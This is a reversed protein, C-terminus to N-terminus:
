RSGSPVRGTNQRVISALVPLAVLGLFHSAQLSDALMAMGSAGVSALLIEVGNSSFRVIAREAGSTVWLKGGEAGGRAGGM